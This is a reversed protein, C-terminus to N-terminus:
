GPSEPAAPSGRLWAPDPRFAALWGPVAAAPMPRAISYGQAIDCGLEVLLAALEATEVGEAVLHRGFAHALGVVSKVIAVDNAGGSMARVFEQDLKVTDVPLRRLYSLSSYGTGFDDLAVTVGLAHCAEIVATARDLDVLATSEVIELELCGRCLGSHSALMEGLEDAFSPSLLHAGAINVAIRARVGADFWRSRQALATRLVWRGLTADLRCANFAPLFAAPGLLGREPHQWRILAELGVVVGQRLDVKPQYYLVFQDDDLARRLRDRERRNGRVPTESGHEFCHFRNRGQEKAAYMALDAHRLLADPTAGDDPFLALGLSATVRVPEGRIADPASVVDLVRQALLECEDVGKLDAFIIVFEDGGLRAVTDAARVTRRLRSAVDILLQDGIDHGYLDNIPKFRDLDLYGVALTSGTRRSRALAQELRDALLTRNPLGTLADHHALRELTEQNHKLLTIDSLHGIYHTLVRSDDRVATIALHVIFAEGDKRRNWVEGEWRGDAAVAQWVGRFFAANHRRSSLVRPTRGLVEERTYGTLQTFMPNVDLIKEEPDCIIVGEHAHTFVTAALRQREILARLADEATVQETVDHIIAFLLPGAVTDVPSVYAEVLRIEGGALRHPVVFQSRTRARADERAAALARQDLLSLESVPMGLLEGRPYGYFREAAPNADVIRGSDPAVLLMVATHGRFLQRFREEDRAADGPDPGPPATDPHTEPVPAL